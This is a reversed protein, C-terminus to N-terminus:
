WDVEVDISVGAVLAWALGDVFGNPITLPISMRNWDVFAWWVVYPLDTTSDPYVNTVLAVVGTHAWKELQPQGGGASPLRWILRGDGMSSATIEISTPGINVGANFNVIGQGTLGTTTFSPM